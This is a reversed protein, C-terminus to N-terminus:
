NNHVFFNFIKIKCMFNYQDYEFKTKKGNGCFSFSTYFM